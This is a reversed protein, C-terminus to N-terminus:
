TGGSGVSGSARTTNSSRVSARVSGGLDASYHAAACDRRSHPPWIVCRGAASRRRAADIRWTCRPGRGSDSRQCQWRPRDAGRGVRRARAACRPGRGWASSRRVRGGGGAVPRLFTQSTSASMMYNGQGGWKGISATCVCETSHIPAIRGYRHPGPSRAMEVSSTHGTSYGNGSAASQSSALPPGSPTCRTGAPSM